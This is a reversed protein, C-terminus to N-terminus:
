QFDKIKAGGIDESPENYHSHARDFWLRLWIDMTKKVKSVTVPVPFDARVFGVDVDEDFVLVTSSFSVAYSGVKGALKATGDAAVTLTLTAAKQTAYDFRWTGNDANAKFYWTGIVSDAVNAVTPDLYSGESDRDFRSRQAWVEYETGYSPLFAGIKSFVSSSTPQEGGVTVAVVDKGDASALQATYTGDDNKTWGLGTFSYTGKATVIKASLNANSPASLRFTGRNLLALDDQRDPDENGIFGNFTGICCDPVGIVLNFSRTLKQGAASVITVTVKFTGVQTSAGTVKGSDEDYALGDPLGTVTVSKPDGPHSSPKLELTFQENDAMVLSTVTADAFVVADKVVVVKRTTSSKGKTFKITYTGAKTPKGTWKGTSKNWKMGTVKKSPTWGKLDTMSITYKLGTYYTRFTTRKWKAYLTVVGNSVTTLNKVSAKNKYLMKTTAYKAWGVFSYDPRIYTNAPLTITKGVKTEVVPMECSTMDNTCNPDFEITYPKVVSPGPKFNKLKKKFWAVAKKGGEAGAQTNDVTDGMTYFDLKKKGDKYWYVRILPYFSQGGYCFNYTQSNGKDGSSVFHFVCGSTKMWNKFATSTCSTEFDVCHPCLDGNSWVAILPVGHNVAYSKAKSLSAHWKGPEVPKSAALRTKVLTATAGAHVPLLSACAVITAVFLKKKM